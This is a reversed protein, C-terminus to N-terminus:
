RFLNGRYAHQPQKKLGTEEVSPTAILAGQSFAM